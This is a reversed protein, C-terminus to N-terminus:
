AVAMHASSYSVTLVAILTQKDYVHLRGFFRELCACTEPVRIAILLVFIFFQMM